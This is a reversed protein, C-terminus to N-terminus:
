GTPFAMHICISNRGIVAGFKTYVLTFLLHVIVDFFWLQMFRCLDLGFQPQLPTQGQGEESDDPLWHNAVPSDHMIGVAHNLAEASAALLGFTRNATYLQGYM